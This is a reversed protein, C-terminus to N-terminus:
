FNCFFMNLLNNPNFTKLFYSNPTTPTVNTETSITPCSAGVCPATPPTFHTTEVHTITEATTSGDYKVVIDDIAIADEANGGCFAYFIM